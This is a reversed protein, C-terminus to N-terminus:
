IDSGLIGGALLSDLGVEAAFGLGDAVETTSVATVFRSRGMAVTILPVLIPLAMPLLHHSHGVKSSPRQRMPMTRAELVDLLHKLGGAREM